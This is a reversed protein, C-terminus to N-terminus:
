TKCSLHRVLTLITQPLEPRVASPSAVLPLVGPFRRPEDPVTHAVHAAFSDGLVHTQTKTLM